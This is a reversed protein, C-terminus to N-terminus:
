TIFFYSFIKKEWKNGVAACLVAMNLREDDNEAEKIEETVSKEKNTRGGCWRTQSSGRRARGPDVRHSM